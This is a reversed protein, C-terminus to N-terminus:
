LKPINGFIEDGHEYIYRSAVSSYPSWKKCDKLIQAPKKNCKYLHNYGKVFALDEVPVIDQRDLCFMLIMKATWKGIGQLKTLEKMANEDDMENIDNLYNKNNKLIQMFSLIYDAKKYTMGLARLDDQSFKLISDASLDNNCLKAFKAYIKNAVKTSILQGIITYVFFQNFNNSLFYEIENKKDIYEGLVKDKRILYQVRKDSKDIKKIKLLDTM